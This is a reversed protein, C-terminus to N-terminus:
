KMREKASTLQRFREQMPEAKPGKWYESKPDGMLKTISALEDNIAQGANAGAGPVVAAVPNIERALQALWRLTDPSNIIRTGDETRADMLMEKVDGPAGSLLGSIMNMNRRFDNGFEARLADESQQKFNEDNEYRQAQIEEVVDYYADVGASVQDPTANKGHMSTLFKDILPKDAEGIVRGEALKLDYKDPTEPIGQDARFAALDEPSANAGLPKKLEGRSIKDQASILADLAAKPSAYRGLRKLLKDDQGAYSERWDDPWASTVAPKQDAPQDLINSPAQQAPAPNATSAPAPTAPADANPIDATAAGNDIDTM